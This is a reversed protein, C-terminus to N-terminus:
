EQTDVPKELLLHLNESIDYSDIDELFLEDIQCTDLSFLREAEEPASNSLSAELIKLEYRIRDIVNDISARVSTADDQTLLIDDGPCFADFTAPSCSRDISISISNTMNCANSEGEGDDDDDEYGGYIDCFINPIPGLYINDIRYGCDFFLREVKEPRSGSQVDELFSLIVRSFDVRSQIADRISSSEKSGFYRGIQYSIGSRSRDGCIRVCSSSM